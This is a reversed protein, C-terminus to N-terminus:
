TLWEVFHVTWANTKSIFNPIIQILWKVFIYKLISSPLCFDTCSYLIRTRMDLECNNLFSNRFNRNWHSLILIRVFKENVNNSAIYWKKHLREGEEWNGDLSRMTFKFINWISTHVLSIRRFLFLKNCNLSCVHILHLWCTCSRIHNFHRIPFFPNMHVARPPWAGNNENDKLLKYDLRYFKSCRSSHM